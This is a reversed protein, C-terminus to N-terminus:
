HQEGRRRGQQQHVVMGAPIGSRASFVNLQRRAQFFGTFQQAYSQQVVDDYADPSM